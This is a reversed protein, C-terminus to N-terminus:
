RLWRLQEDGVHQRLHSRNPLVFTATGRAKQQGLRARALNFHPAPPKRRARTIVGLSVRRPALLGDQYSRPAKRDLNTVM